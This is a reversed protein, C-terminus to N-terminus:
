PNPNPNPNPDGTASIYNMYDIQAGYYGTGMAPLFSLPSFSCPVLCYESGTGMAPLSSLPSFLVPSSLPRFLVVVSSPLIYTGDGRVRVRV